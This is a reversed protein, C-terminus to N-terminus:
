QTRDGTRVHVVEVQHPELEILNAFRRAITQVEPSRQM